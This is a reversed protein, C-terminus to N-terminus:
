DVTTSTSSDRSPSGFIGTGIRVLESGEGLAAEYDQSMGMSCITGRYGLGPTSRLQNHLEKLRRFSSRAGELGGKRPGMTMLGDLVLRDMELVERVLDPCDAVSVGTKSVDDATKVEILVRCTSNLAECRRWIVEALRPSDLSHVMEVAGVIQRVKNSQLHGIFHWRIDLDSLEAQKRVLEQVRNEGFDRQGAAHAQRIAEVSAHKSVALLTLDQKWGPGRLREFEAHLRQLNHAVQSM